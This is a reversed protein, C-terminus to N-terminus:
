LMNCWLGSFTIEPDEEAINKVVIQKPSLHIYFETVFAFDYLM